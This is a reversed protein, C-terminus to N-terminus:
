FKRRKVQLKLNQNKVKSNKVARGVLGSFGLLKEEAAQMRVRDASRHHDFGLTHLLGHTFLLALEDALSIGHAKAQREAVPVGIVIEGYDFSLVDTSEDRRRYRRNMTRITREDALVLSLERFSAPRRVRLRLARDVLVQLQARPVRCSVLRQIFLRM